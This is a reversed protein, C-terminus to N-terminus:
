PADPSKLILKTSGITITEGPKLSRPETIVTGEVITGNSSGLDRVVFGAPTQVILAHSRSATEDNLHIGCSPDRGIRDEGGLPYSRGVDPGAVIALTWGKQPGVLVTKAVASEDFAPGAKVPPSSAPVRVGAPSPSASGVALPVAFGPTPVLPVPAKSPAPRPTSTETSTVVDRTIVRCDAVWDHFAQQHENLAAMVFGGFLPLASVTKAWHRLTARGLSIPRGRLDTVALGLLMKGISGRRSSSELIAFYCWGTVFVALYAAFMRRDGTIGTQWILAVSVGAGLVAWIVLDVLGAIVRRSLPAQASAQPIGPKQGTTM